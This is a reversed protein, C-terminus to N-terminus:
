AGDKRHVLDIITVEPPSLFRLPPGWTGAGRNVYLFSRNELNLLGADVPYLRKILLSFPFIQGKHTHGSLQLDFLGASEKELYPRHKLLLIFSEKSLGSLLQRESNGEMAGYREGRPDDVGAITIVGPITVSEGRLLRFGAARTFSLAHDIGAHFEHNGTVAFKGYRPEIQRFTDVMHSVHDILGDVLDGTSVLIDPKAAAVRDLINELRGNRVILGLHVDSIQVIRVRGQKESIKPTEITLHETTISLAEVYAYIGMLFTGTAAIFFLTKPSFSWSGPSKQFIYALLSFLLRLLDLVFASCVFLFLLAMWTFGIHALAAPLSEMGERELIRVLIPCFIMFVMFLATLLLFIKSSSFAARIKLFAYFHLLSYLTIFVTLFLSFRM